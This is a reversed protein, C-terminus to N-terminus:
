LCQNLIYPKLDFFNLFETRFAAGNFDHHATNEGPFAVCLLGSTQAATLGEVNDEIAMCVEPHEDLQSLAFEYADPAPKPVRVQSAQVVLDFDQPRLHEGLAEFLAAINQESTTTVLAVTLGSERASKITELVGSRPELHTNKLFEQFIESKLRHVAATDVMQEMREAFTAIRRKGGSVQLLNVYQERSWHWGLNQRAFAENFAARQFESTEAITGISGFFIASM